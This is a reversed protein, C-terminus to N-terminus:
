EGSDEMHTATQYGPVLGLTPRADSPSPLDFLRAAAAALDVKAGGPPAASAKRLAVIPRHLLKRVLLDTLYELRALDAPPADRRCAQRLCEQRAQEAHSRLEAILDALQAAAQRREYAALEQAILEEVRRIELERADANEAVVAAMDDINFLHVGPLAAVAPEVNRPVGLDVVVLPRGGRGETAPQVQDVGVLHHPAAACGVIIDARALEPLLQAPGIARGGLTLALSEAREATRSFVTVPGVGAAVLHKLTTKAMRGAGFALVRKGQLSGLVAQALRVACQGVSFIGSSIATEQRARKGIHLASRFLRKLAPGAFGSALADALTAKVQGVIEYEGLVASDLGCAVRFLHRVAESGLHHYVHAPSLPASGGTPNGLLRAAAQVTQADGPALYYLERRNCTQLVAVEAAALEVRARHLLGVPDAPLCERTALPTQRYSIGVVQIM